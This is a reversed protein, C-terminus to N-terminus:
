IAEGLLGPSCARTPDFRRKVAAILRSEPLEAIAFSDVERRVAEPADLVACHRGGLERRLMMVNRAIEGNGAPPLRLWALGHAARGVLSAGAREAVDFIPELPACEGLVMVTAGGEPSRQGQRQLDWLAEADVGNVTEAELGERSLLRQARAALKASAVGAVEALVSGSGKAWNVDLREPELQCRALHRAARATVAQDSCRALITVPDVAVPHVRLVMRSILGLSGFSRAYLKALDYGAVNKIVRGGAKAVQGGPLVVSVGLLLDRATGYRHRLPGADGTAVIGGVTAAAGAGVPPDLALRQGTARLREQLDALRVGPEVVLTFDGPSHELVRNLRTTSLELDVAIPNGWDFKTGGGRIRVTRRDRALACMAKEAEGHDAPEV